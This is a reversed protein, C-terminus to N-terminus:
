RISVFFFRDDILVIFLICCLRRWFRQFPQRSDISSAAHVLGGSCVTLGANLARHTDIDVSPASHVASYDLPALLFSFFLSAPHPRRPPHPSRWLHNSLGREGKLLLGSQELARM